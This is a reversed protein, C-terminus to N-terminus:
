TILLCSKQRLLSLRCRYRSSRRAAFCTGASPMGSCRRSPGRSVSLGAFRPRKWSHMRHFPRLDRHCCKLAPIWSNRVWFCFAAQIGRSAIKCNVRCFSRNWGQPSRLALCSCHHDHSWSAQRYFRGLLRCQHCCCRSSCRLGLNTWFNPSNSSCPSHFCLVWVQNLELPPSVLTQMSLCPGHRVSWWAPTGRSRGLFCTFFIFIYFTWILKV